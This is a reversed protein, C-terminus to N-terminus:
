WSKGLTEDEGRLLMLTTEPFPNDKTQLFWDTYDLILQKDCLDVNSCGTILSNVFYAQNEETVGIVTSTDLIGASVNETKLAETFELLFLNHFRSDVLQVFCAAQNTIVTLSELKAQLITRNLGITSISEEKDSGICSLAHINAFIGLFSISYLILMM